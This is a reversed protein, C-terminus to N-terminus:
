KKKPPPPPPWNKPPDKSARKGLGKRLKPEPLKVTSSM